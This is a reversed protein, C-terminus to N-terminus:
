FAFLFELRPFRVFPGQLDIRQYYKDELARRISALFTRYFVRVPNLSPRYDARAQDLAREIRYSTVGDETNYAIVQAAQLHQIMKARLERRERLEEDTRM